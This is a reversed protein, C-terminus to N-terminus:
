QEHQGVARQQTARALAMAFQKVGGGAAHTQGADDDRCPQAQAGDAAAEDFFGHDCGVIEGAGDRQECFVMPTGIPDGPQVDILAAWRAAAPQHHEAFMGGVAAQMGNRAPRQGHGDIQGSAQEAPGHSTGEIRKIKLAARTMARAAAHMVRLVEKREIRQVIPIAQIAFGTEHLM